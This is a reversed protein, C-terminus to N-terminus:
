NLVLKGLYDALHPALTFCWRLREAKYKLFQSVLAHDFEDAPTLVAERGTSLVVSLPNAQGSRHCL